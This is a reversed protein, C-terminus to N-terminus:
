RRARPGRAPISATRCGAHGSGATRARHLRDAPLAARRQPQAPRGDPGGALPRGGAARSDPGAIGIVGRERLAITSRPAPSIGCWRSGTSMRPRTACSLEPRCTRTGVRLLLFDPDSRRREWLRRRPGTAITLVTAPDPCSARRAALEAALADHADAEIRARHERHAALRAAYSKRGHKRDSFYNGVMTVPSLACMALMYVEHLLVAMLVGLVVPVVAMLIPLPRREERGPPAPLAFKTDRAPPLLRPPRNFDLGAGDEAPRLAADPAEYPALELLPGAALVQQGPRWDVPGTVPEGGLTVGAAGAATLRCAGRSDVTVQLSLEAPGSAAAGPLGGPDYATGPVTGRAPLRVAAHAGTGIEAVGVSLRHVAGAAPGGAVRIEVIGTPEPPLCGSPDGLSAVCGARLPSDAVPQAPPVPRGDVYLVPAGATHQRGGPGSRLTLVATGAAEPRAGAPFGGGAPSDYRSPFRIVNAAGSPDGPLGAGAGAPPVPEGHVLAALEAAVEGAPTQPDADLVVDVRIGAAPSVATMMLRM